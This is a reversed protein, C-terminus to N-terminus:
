PINRPRGRDSRGIHRWADWETGQQREDDVGITGVLGVGAGSRPEQPPHACASSRCVQPAHNSRNVLAPLPAQCPDHPCIDRARRGRIPLEGIFDFSMLLALPSQSTTIPMSTWAWTVEREFSKEPADVANPPSGLEWTDSTSAAIGPMSGTILSSHM